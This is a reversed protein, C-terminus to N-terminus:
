TKFMDNKSNSIPSKNGPRLLARSHEWGAGDATFIGNGLLPFFNDRRQSGLDFDNFQHALLAQINKPDSTVFNTKLFQSIAFTDVRRGELAGMQNQRAVFLDPVLKQKDAAIIEKVSGIGLFDNIPFEPAPKCGMDRAQSAHRRRAVLSTVVQYVVFAALVGLAIILNHLM